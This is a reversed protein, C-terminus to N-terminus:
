RSDIAQISDLADSLLPWPNPAATYSLQLSREINNRDNEPIVRGINAMLVKASYGGEQQAASHLLPVQSASEVSTLAVINKKFRAPDFSSHGKTDILRLANHIQLSTMFEPNIVWLIAYATTSAPDVDLGACLRAFADSMNGPQWLGTLRFADAVLFRRRGCQLDALLQKEQEPSAGTAVCAIQDEPIGEAKLLEARQEPYAQVALVHVAPKKAAQLSQDMKLIAQMIGAQGHVISWNASPIVNSYEVERVSLDAIFKQIFARVDDVRAFDKQRVVALVDPLTLSPPNPASVPSGNAPAPALAPAPAPSSLGRKVARYKNVGLGIKSFVLASVLVSGLFYFFFSVDSGKIAQFLFLAVFLLSLGFYASHKLASNRDHSGCKPCTWFSWDDTKFENGCQPCQVSKQPLISNLM